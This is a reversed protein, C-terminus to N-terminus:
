LLSQYRSSLPDEEYSALARPPGLILVTRIAARPDLTYGSHREEETVQAVPTFKKFVERNVPVAPVEAAPGEAVPVAAVPVEVVPEAQGEFLDRIRNAIEDPDTRGPEERAGQDPQQARRRARERERAEQRKKPNPSLVQGVIGLLILLLWPNGGILDWLWNM